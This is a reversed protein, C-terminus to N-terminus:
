ESSAIRQPSLALWADVEKRISDFTESSFASDLSGGRYAADIALISNESVGQRQLSVSNVGHLNVPSGFAKAYPPIDKTVPTGMGIMAGPGIIQRQHVSVNMGINTGDGITCHGGISVGASITVHSGIQVDHALYARNLIWSGKGIKTPRHSGQHIVANERIVVESEIEVGSHDVDGAWAANQSLTSIEPPAGIVTNPGIWVNDGITCPGLLTVFPGITVNSGLHVGEGIFSSEHIQNKM